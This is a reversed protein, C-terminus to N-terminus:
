YSLDLRVKDSDKPVSRVWFPSLSVKAEAIGSVGSLYAKIQSDKKGLLNSIIQGSDLKAYSKGTVHATFTLGKKLDDWKINEYSFSLKEPLVTQSGGGIKKVVLEELDSQKFGVTRISGSLSAKFTATGAAPSESNFEGISIQNDNIVQLGNIQAKLEDQVTATIKATLSQKASALDANTAVSAKGGTGSHMSASSKGYIKKYKEAIEREGPSTILTEEISALLKELDDFLGTGKISSLTQRQTLLEQMAPSLPMPKGFRKSTNILFKLFRAGELSGTVFSQYKSNFAMLKKRSFKSQNRKKFKQALRRISADMEKEDALRRQDLADFLKSLQPYKVLEERTRKLDKLYMLLQLLDSQEERFAMLKQHYTNLSESYVERRQDDLRNKLRSLEIFITEKNRAARLYAFYNRKYLEWDEIGYFRAEVPNMVAASETGTLEGKELYGKFVKKKVAEDPFARFLMPDLKGKGGEFFVLDIGYEKQFYKILRQMHNQADLVAHADQIFIIFRDAKPFLRISQLSGLQYPIKVELPISVALRTAPATELPVQTWGLNSLGFVFVNLWLASKMWCSNRCWALM